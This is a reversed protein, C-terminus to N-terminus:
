GGLWNIPGLLHRHKEVGAENAVLVRYSGGDKPQANTITYAANTAGPIAEGNIQWQYQWAGEGITNLSLTLNQGLEIWNTTVTHTISVPALVSVRATSSRSPRM